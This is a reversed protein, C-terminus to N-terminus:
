GGFAPVKELIPSNTVKLLTKFSKEMNITESITTVM